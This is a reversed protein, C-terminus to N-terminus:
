EVKGPRAFTQRADGIRDIAAGVDIIFLPRAEEHARRPAEEAEFGLQRLGAIIAGGEDAIHRHDHRAIHIAAKAGELIAAGM